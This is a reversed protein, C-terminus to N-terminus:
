LIALDDIWAFTPSARQGTLRQTSDWVCWVTPNWVHATHRRSQPRLEMPACYVYIRTPPDDRYVLRWKTHGSLLLGTGLLALWEVGLDLAHRAYQGAQRAPPRTIIASARLLPQDLFSVGERADSQHVQWGPLAMALALAIDGHACAPDWVAGPGAGVRRAWWGGALEEERLLTFVVMPPIRDRASPDPPHSLKM